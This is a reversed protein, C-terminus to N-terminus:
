QKPEELASRLEALFGPKDCQLQAGFQWGGGEQTVKVLFHNWGRKLPLAKSKIQGIVAPHIAVDEVLKKGNLWLQMGDDSGMLLDVKPIDPEILLDDLPRPSHLWFSLYVVGKEKSGPLELKKFDFLNGANADVKTWVRDGAKDGVRPKVKTQENLYDTETGQKLNEAPFGGCVLAQQLFGSMNFLGGEVKDDPETLQLGINALIRRSIDMREKSDAMGHISSVLLRGKGVNLAVLAAGSPKAERESRTVMATKVQEGQKNWKRWDTNCAELLVRGKEVLPGALGNQIIVNPNMESFYLDAATLGEVVPDAQRVLLSSWERKTLELREPLLANLQDLTKTNPGWVLVTGGQALTADVLQKGEAPAPVAADIILVEPAKGAVPDQIKVGALQMQKRLMGDGLLSAQAITGAPLPRPTAAPIKPITDWKCPKPGEPAYAAQIAEFMPWTVYLPLKPDYGPNLTSCYPGLREPQVGPQGEVYAGFFIGDELTYPRSTDPLGLELPQLAYWALNFVSCYSAGFKRQGNAILNYSEYAIGEMRGLMSEYARDGNYKSVQKPTGYYAMTQEGIGWPKGKESWRKMSALDGYHGVLTPLRGDADEDGDASVWPRTSDVSQVIGLWKAYRECMAEVVEPPQHRVHKIVPIVENAVSWGFVSPHNRDRLVMNKLHVECRDWLEQNDMMLGGDSAWIASEAMVMVGMEDAVDLYFRPYVQAHPRVANGNAEKLMKFWAWAYRRTMQPIGLFHWSDGRLELPKGNLLQRSGEFTLQRWGFREYRRDVAKGNVATELVLGYLNPSDPTWFALKDGVTQKLTVTTEQGAPVSVKVAPVALVAEKLKWKPVPASVVDNGALSQWPHVKGGVSVQQAKATDNRLTVEVELSDKNVLPKVFLGAVRVEPLAMLSVDQWIGAIHPGWISGYPYPRTGMPTQGDFLSSKRVGVLLENEGDWRLADTVDLDFPLFIDFHEGVNKGNVLVQAHGAVAEFHLVVRRGKWEKPVQFGRRLWAMDVKNWAEPYSPYARFDGGKGDTFSNVNWPSPIRIPTKEWGEAQPAPLEPAKGTKPKFGAPLPMPQFQWTGNLSIEQRYPQEPAKVVGEQPAFVHPFQVAAQSAFTGLVM